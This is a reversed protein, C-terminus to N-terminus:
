CWHQIVWPDKCEQPNPEGHFVAIKTDNLVRPEGIDKFNRKGTQPDRIMLPRGRMEWKYSQIWEDPWFVFDNKIKHYIWDQDGHFKRSIQTPDTIFENYVDKHQGTHLKFVSSNMRSFNKVTSRNFDRIICFKNKNYEFLSNINNFIVLDLDLFLINGKLIFNPDFFMPKYWWGNIPLNPLPECRINSDIGQKNETFCVFEYPLTLNREVM